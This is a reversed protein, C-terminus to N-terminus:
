STGGSLFLPVERVFIRSGLKGELIPRAFLRVQVPKGTAPADPAAALVLISAQPKPAYREVKGGNPLPPKEVPNAIGPAVAVGTPLGDFEFTVSGAFDEERETTLHLETVAGPRLNIQQESLSVKGLHPVSRRIAVKYEFDEGARDTTIDRVELRYMGTTRLSVTSKPQIMKMMYLGNNNRKTYVNTVMENGGEDLLRVVPNFRPMTARPTELEIVLEGAEDLRVRVAQSEAPKGIRGHVIGPISVVPLDAASADAAEWTEAQKSVPTTAGRAAIRESWDASLVRTFQREEWARELEPHLLPDATAGRTVKLTYVCDAGGQGGFGSVAITYAGAKAFRHTLKANHSLGPFHLPEDNAAIRNM